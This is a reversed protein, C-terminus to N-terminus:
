RGGELLDTAGRQFRYPRAGVDLRTGDEDKRKIDGADICPSKASLSFDTQRPALFRPPEYFVGPGIEVDGYVLVDSAWVDTYRLRLVSGPDLVRAGFEWNDSLICNHMYLEGRHRALVGERNDVITCGDVRAVAGTTVHIGPPGNNWILLGEARLEGGEGLHIGESPNNVIRLDEALVLTHGSSWIGMRNGVLQSERIRAKGQDAVELGYFGNEALVSQGIDVWARPSRVLAGSQGNRVLASQEVGLRGSEVRIGDVRARSSVSGMVRTTRDRVTAVWLNTGYGSLKCQDFEAEAAGALRVGVSDAEGTAIWETGWLLPSGGEVDLAVALSDEARGSGVFRMWQIRVNGVKPEVRVPPQGPYLPIVVAGADGVSGSVVIEPVSLSFSGPWTGPSVWVTDGPGAAAIADAITSFEAPVGHVAGLASLPGGLAWALLCGLGRM